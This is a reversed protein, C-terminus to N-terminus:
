AANQIREWPGWIAFTMGPVQLNVFLTQGDPSFTVGALEKTQFGRVINEALDFVHGQPTLVRLYSRHDNDECIILNRGALCINDPMFLVSSDTVELLLTLHGQDKGSPVYEWVQGLEKDGGNTSTFYVRGNGYFCGELRAFTAAGAGIGQKYVALNDLEAEAPDPNPIDVWGALLPTGAKQGTRTDYKPHDKVTLMQLRGGAALQGAQNPIFRYFGAKQFDETLYVIGTQSDVAVAEHVFRGMQKLPVPTVPENAASSVEFCYGHGKEFGGQDAGESNKLRVQGLVTEECSIWSNWPTHGGACNVLTGSLSVFDKVLERTTPDIVLTTTGGAALQDYANPGIAAGPTGIQNNVEHNRVLRLEDKVQFAAMGDHAPPTLRGDFMRTGTKGFVTYQFDKPLALLTEGTNTAKTPILPGYVAATTPQAPARLLGYRQVLGYFALLGTGAIGAGLIFERRSLDSL